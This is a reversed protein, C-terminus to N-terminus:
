FVSVSGNRWPAMNAAGCSRKYSMVLGGKFVTSVHPFRVRLEQTCALHSGLKVLSGFSVLAPLSFRVRAELMALQRVVVIRYGCLCHVYRSDFGFMRNLVLTVKSEAKRSKGVIIATIGLM